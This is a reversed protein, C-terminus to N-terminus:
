KEDKQRAWQLKMTNAKDSEAEKLDDVSELIKRIDSFEIASSFKLETAGILVNFGGIQINVTADMRECGKLYKIAEALVKIVRDSTQIKAEEEKKLVEERANKALANLEELTMKDENM